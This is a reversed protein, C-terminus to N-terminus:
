IWITSSKNISISCTFITLISILIHNPIQTLFKQYPMNHIQMQMVSIQVTSLTLDWQQYTQNKCRFNWCWFISKVLMLVYINQWPWKSFLNRMNLDCMPLVTLICSIKNTEEPGNLMGTQICVLSSLSQWCNERVTGRCKGRSCNSSKWVPRALVLKEAFYGFWGNPMDRGTVVRISSYLLSFFQQCISDRQINEWLVHWSACPHLAQWFTRTQISDTLLVLRRTQRDSRSVLHHGTMENEVLFRRHSLQKLHDSSPLCGAKGRVWESVM